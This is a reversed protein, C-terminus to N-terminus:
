AVTTSEVGALRLLRARNLIRVSGSGVAVIEEERLRRLTRNVHVISLGLCDAIIEQSAPFPFTMADALGAKRTRQALELLLQAMREKANCRALNLARLSLMEYEAAVAQAMAAALLPSRDFLSRLREKSTWFITADTLTAVFHSATEAFPGIVDGDILVNTIHRRGDDLLRYRYAWGTRLVYLGEVTQGEVFIDHNRGVHRIEVEGDLVREFDGFPVHHLVHPAGAGVSPAYRDATEFHPQRM